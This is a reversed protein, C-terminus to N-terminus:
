FRLAYPHIPSPLLLLEPLCARLHVEPSSQRRSPQSTPEQIAPWAPLGCSQRECSPMALQVYDIQHELLLRLTAVSGCPHPVIIRKNKTRNTRMVPYKTQASITKSRSQGIRVILPKIMESM